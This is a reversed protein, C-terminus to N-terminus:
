AAAELLKLANGVKMRLDNLTDLVGQGAFPQGLDFAIYFANKPDGQLITGHPLLSSLLGGSGDQPYKDLFTIHRIGGGAKNGASDLFDLREVKEVSMTPILVRHKDTIDLLHLDYLGLKGGDYPQIDDFIVRCVKDSPALGKEKHREISAEGSQREKRFPFYVDRTVTGGNAEVLTCYAHDLSARLNHIADGLVTSTHKPFAVRKPTAHNLTRHNRKPRLRKMNDAIYHRFITELQRVHHEAREVKLYPGYFDVNAM